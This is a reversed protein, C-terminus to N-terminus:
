YQCNNNIKFLAKYSNKNTYKEGKNRIAKKIADWKNESSDFNKAVNTFHLVIQLTLCLEAVGSAKASTTFIIFKVPSHSASERRISSVLNAEIAQLWLRLICYNLAQRVKGSRRSEQLGLLIAQAMQNSQDVAGEDKSWFIKKTSEASNHGLKFKYIILWKLDCVSHLLTCHALAGVVM